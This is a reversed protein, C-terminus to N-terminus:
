DMRWCPLSRQQSGDATYQKMAQTVDADVAALGNAMEKTVPALSAIGAISTDIGDFFNEEKDKADVRSGYRHYAVDFAGPAARTRGGNQSKQEGLGTRAFQLYSMGLLPSNTGEPITVNTSPASQREVTKTIYNYFKAPAYKGTAYDYIGKDSISYGPVREYVKLPQWPRLGKKPLRSRRVGECRGGCPVGRAGAARGGPPARAWRYRRRYLSSSSTVVLPRYIRVARVADCLVRDYGWNALAEDMTKSFGFDVVSGFM